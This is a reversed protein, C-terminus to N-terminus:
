ERVGESQRIVADVAGDVDDARAIETGDKARIFRWAGDAYDCGIEVAGLHLVPLGRREVIRGAFRLRVQAAAQLTKLHERRQNRLAPREATAAHRGRRFSM